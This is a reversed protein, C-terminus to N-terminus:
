LNWRWSLGFTRPPNYIRTVLGLIPTNFGSEVVEANGLNKGWLALEWTGTDSLIAIRGNILFAAEARTLPDNDASRYMESQYKFDTQLALDLGASLSLEYRILGNFDWRPANPLENGEPVSGEAGMFSSMRTELWGVGLRLHLYEIPRSMLELEAGLNSAGDINALRFGVTSQVFSQISQYDYYFLAGNLLANKSRTSLGLEAIPLDSISDQM